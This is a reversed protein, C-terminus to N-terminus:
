VFPAMVGIYDFLYCQIGDVGVFYLLALCGIKALLDATALAPGEELMAEFVHYFVFILLGTVLAYVILAALTEFVSYFGGYYIWLPIIYMFIFIITTASSLFSTIFTYPLWADDDSAIIVTRIVASVIAIILIAVSTFVLHAMLFEFINLLAVSAGAFCFAGVILAIIAGIDVIVVFM